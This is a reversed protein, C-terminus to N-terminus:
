FLDEERLGQLSRFLMDLKEDFNPHQDIRAFHTTATFINHNGGCGCIEHEITTEGTQLYLPAHAIAINRLDAKLGGIVESAEIGEGSVAKTVVTMNKKGTVVVKLKQFFPIPSFLLFLISSRKRSMKRMKLERNM